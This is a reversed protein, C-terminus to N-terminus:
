VMAVVGSALQGLRVPMNGRGFDLGDRPFLDYRAGEVQVEVADRGWEAQREPQYGIGRFFFRGPYNEGGIPSLL